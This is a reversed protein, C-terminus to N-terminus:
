DNRGVITSPWNRTMHEEAQPDLTLGEHEDSNILATEDIQEGDNAQLELPTVAAESPLRVVVGATLNLTQNTINANVTVGKSEDGLLAQSAKLRLTGAAASGDGKDHLLEIQTRVAAVKAGNRISDLGKNYERKFATQGFLWRAYRRRLRTLDAAQEITLPVYQQVDIQQCLDPKSCGHLLYELFLQQTPNLDTIVKRPTKPYDRKVLRIHERAMALQSSVSLEAERARLKLDCRM